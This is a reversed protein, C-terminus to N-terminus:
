QRECLEWHHNIEKKEGSSDYGHGKSLALLERWFLVEREKGASTLM